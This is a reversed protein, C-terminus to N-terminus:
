RPSLYRERATYALYRPSSIMKGLTRVALKAQLLLGSWFVLLDDSERATGTQRNRCGVSTGPPRKKM